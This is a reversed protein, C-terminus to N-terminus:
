IDYITRYKEDLYSIFYDVKLKEDTVLYILEEPNYISGHTFIKEKFWENIKDWNGSSLLEGYDPKERKLTSYIQAAYLNGLIYNPFYGFYGSFWHVDQLVGLGHNPPEIGLYEKYKENWVKPIDKVNLKNNILDKEIEYRIIIHLNYTLEDADMRIFSYDVNNLAEFFNKKSISKLSPFYDQIIPYYFDWFEKSRGFINEYFRAIAELIVLSSPEGLFTGYLDSSIGQEYLAQGGVHLATTFAPRFDEENYNTIIRVDKNSNPLITPHEGEDVRGADFDFGIRNLIDMTMNAQTEKNFHGNFIDKNIKVKSKKIKKLLMVIFERLQLFMEDAAKSTVGEEYFSFLADYPDEEYGWYQTFNKFHDVIKELYPVVTEFDNNKKCISWIEEAETILYIYDRYEESPIKNIFEYNRKIKRIMSNTVIDLEEPDKSAFYSVLKIFEKDESLRHIEGALFAMVESRFDIGKKPMKSVKDWYLLNNNTFRLYEIKKIHEKIKKLKKEDSLNM